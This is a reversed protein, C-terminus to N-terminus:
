NFYGPLIKVNLSNQSVTIKPYDATLTDEFIIVIGNDTSLSSITKQIKINGDFLEDFFCEWAKLNSNYITIKKISNHVATVRDSFVTKVPYTGFGSFVKEGDINNLKILDFTIQSGEAFINPQLFVIEGKQQNLIVAGSEYTYTQDVFYSNKSKYILSGISYTYVNDDTDTFEIQFDHPQIEISGYARTSSFFPIEKSGLTVPATIATHKTASVTLTDVAFKLQSFQKAVEDMHEAEKQEMWMPVFTTQIFALGSFILGIMLLAVVVGAVGHNSDLIKKMKKNKM